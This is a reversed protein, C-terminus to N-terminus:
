DSTKVPELGGIDFRDVVVLNAIGNRSFEEVYHQRIPGEAM